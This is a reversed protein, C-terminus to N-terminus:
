RPVQLTRTGISTAPSGLTGTVPDRQTWRGLQPYYYRTGFKTLGTPDQYGGAYRWPNPM